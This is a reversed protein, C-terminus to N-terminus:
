KSRVFMKERDLAYGWPLGSNKWGDVNRVPNDPSAKSTAGEFGDVVVHVAALGLGELAAASPAGREGGSRCMLIVPAARDLGRAALAALVAEAFSPNRDMAFVPKSAHWRTPDSLLFPINVDVLPAFGTFMIEVPDRVDVFLVADGLDRKMAAAETATLYLGWSTQRAPDTPADAALAPAAAALLSLALACTRLMPRM